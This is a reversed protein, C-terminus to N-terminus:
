GHFFSWHEDVSSSQLNIKKWNIVTIKWRNLTGHTELDFDDYRLDATLLAVFYIKWRLIHTLLPSQILSRATCFNLPHMLIKLHFLLNLNSFILPIQKAISVASTPFCSHWILKKICYMLSACLIIFDRKFTRFNVKDPTLGYIKM